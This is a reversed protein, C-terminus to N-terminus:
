SRRRFWGTVSLRERSAPLVEHEFRDALFCVLTGGLPLVDRAAGTDLHFRLAGGDAHTWADNLYLVCSLVRTDDDRFRDRHPRYFAGPPYIAYHGEFLFLGLFLADNLAARLEGLAAHLAIEVPVSPCEELWATRDGRVDAREVRERGRGVRAAHFDGAADRRRAEMALARVIPLAVFDPEVAMRDEAIATCVRALATEALSATASM